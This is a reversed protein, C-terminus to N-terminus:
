QIARFHLRAPAEGNAKKFYCNMQAPKPGASSSRRSHSDGNEECAEPALTLSGEFPWVARAGFYERGGATKQRPFLIAAEGTKVLGHRGFARLVSWHDVRRYGETAAFGPV